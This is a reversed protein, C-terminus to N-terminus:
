VREQVEGEEETPEGGVERTGRWGRRHVEMMERRRGVALNHVHVHVICIIRVVFILL